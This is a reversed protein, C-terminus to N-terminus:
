TYSEPSSTPDMRASIKGTVFCAPGNTLVNPIHSMAIQRSIFQIESPLELLISQAMLSKYTLSPNHMIKQSNRELELAKLKHLCDRDFNHFMQTCYKVRNPICRILDRETM